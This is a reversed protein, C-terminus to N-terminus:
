SFVWHPSFISILALSFNSAYMLSTFGNDDQSNPNAGYQIRRGSERPIGEPNLLLKVIDEYGRLSALILANNLYNINIKESILNRVKEINNNNIASILERKTKPDM